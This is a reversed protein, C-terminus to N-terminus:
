HTERSDRLDQQAIRHALTNLLGRAEPMTFEIAILEPDDDSGRVFRITILREELSLTASSEWGGVTDGKGDNETNLYTRIFAM